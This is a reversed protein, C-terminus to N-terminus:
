PHAEVYDAIARLQEPYFRGDLMVDKEGDNHEIRSEIFNSDNVRLGGAPTRYEYLQQTFQEAVYEPSNREM